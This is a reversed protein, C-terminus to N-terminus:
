PTVLKSGKFYIDHMIQYNYVLGKFYDKNTQIKNVIKDGITLCGALSL